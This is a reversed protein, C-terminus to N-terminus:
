YIREDTMFKNKRKKIREKKKRGEDIRSKRVKKREEDIRRDKRIIISGGSRGKKKREM